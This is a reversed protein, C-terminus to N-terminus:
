PSSTIFLGRARLAASPSAPVGSVRLGLAAGPFDVGKPARSGSRRVLPLQYKKIADASAAAFAYDKPHMAMARVSKKHYTLTGMTTNKRLDWMKITKDHSGTIVQVGALM